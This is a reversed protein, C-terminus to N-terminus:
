QENKIIDVMIITTPCSKDLEPTPNRRKEKKATKLWEFLECWKHKPPQFLQIQMFFIKM